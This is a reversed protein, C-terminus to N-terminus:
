FKHLMEKHVMEAKGDLVEQVYSELSRGKVGPYLDDVLLYGLYQANEPTNDGRVGWSRM